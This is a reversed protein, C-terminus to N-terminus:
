SHDSVFDRLQDFLSSMDTTEIYVADDVDQYKTNYKDILDSMDSEANDIIDSIKDNLKDYDNESQKALSLKNKM